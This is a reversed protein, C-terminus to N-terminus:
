LCRHLPLSSSYSPVTRWSRGGNGTKRLYPPSGGSIFRMVAFGTASGVFDLQAIVSRIGRARPQVWHRGGDTTRYLDSGNSAWGHFRDAFSFIPISGVQAVEPLVLPTTNRWSMGGDHTVYADLVDASKGRVLQVPLIGEAHGFFLPPYTQSAHYGNPLPLRQRQWQRGSDRTVWLFPGSTASPAFFSGTAWGTRGDLFTIARGCNCSPFMVASRRGPGAALVRTWHLGGDVTRLLIFYPVAMTGADLWFWGDHRNAFTLDSFPEVSGQVPMRAQQWTRGGNTTRFVTVPGRQIANTKPLVAPSVAIWADTGSLFDAAMQYRQPLGCPMVDTWNRAGDTTRFVVRNSVSWGIRTTMMRISTLPLAARMADAPVAQPALSAAVLLM